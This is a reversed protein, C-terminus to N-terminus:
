GQQLQVVGASAVGEVRGVVGEIKEVCSPCTFPETEFKVTRM